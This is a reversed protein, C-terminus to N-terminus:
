RGDGAGGALRPRLLEALYRTYVDAGDPNVHVIDSFQRNPYRVYEPGVVDIWPYASLARALAEGGPSPGRSPERCYEPVVILRIHREVAIAEFQRFVDTSADFARSPSQDPRDTELRFDDPLRHGPFHSQGEIFYYGGDATIQEVTQRGQDYFARIGGRSRARLAFLVVDRPMHRFPFVADAIEADPPLPNFPGRRADPEPWPRMLVVHTPTEGHDLISRLDALLRNAGPIGANYASVGPGLLSELLRPKVGAVTLSDGFFAVRVRAGPAFCPGARMQRTKTDTVIAAGSRTYPLMVYAVYFAGWLVALLV